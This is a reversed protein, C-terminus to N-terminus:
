GAAGLAAVARALVNVSDIQVIGVQAFLSRLHRRDLRATPRPRVLGQAALAARRAEPCCSSRAPRRAARWPRM